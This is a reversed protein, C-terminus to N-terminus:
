MLKKTIELRMEPEELIRYVVVLPSSANVLKERIEPKIELAINKILVPNEALAIFLPDYKMSEYIEELEADFINGLSWSYLSHAGPYVNGDDSVELGTVPLRENSKESKLFEETRTKFGPSEFPELASAKGISEVASYLIFVNGTDFKLYAKLLAPKMVLKNGDVVSVELSPDFYRDAIEAKLGRKELEFLLNIIPDDYRTYKPVLCLGIHRFKRVVLEVINALNALPINEVLKSNEFFIEQHFADISLQMSFNFGHNKNKRIESGIAHLIKEAKQKTGAWSGSTSLEVRSRANRIIYLVRDLELLPEGGTITVILNHRSAFGLVKDAIRKFDSRKSRKRVPTKWAALCFRCRNECLETPVIGINLLKTDAKKGRGVLGRVLERREVDARSGILSYLRKKDEIVARIKEEEGIGLGFDNWLRLVLEIANERMAEDIDIYNIDVAKEVRSRFEKEQLLPEFLKLPWGTFSLSDIINGAYRAGARREIFEFIYLVMLLFGIDQSIGRADIVDQLWALKDKLFTTKARLFREELSEDRANRLMVDLHTEAKKIVPQKKM